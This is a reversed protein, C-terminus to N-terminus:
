KKVKVGRYKYKNPRYESFYWVIGSIGLWAFFLTLVLEWNLSM